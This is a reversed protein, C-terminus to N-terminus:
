KSKLKDIFAAIYILATIIPLLIITALFLLFANIWKLGEGTLFLSSLEVFLLIASFFLMLLFVISAIRITIKEIM